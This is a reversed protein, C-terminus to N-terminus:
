AFHARAPVLDGSNGLWFSRPCISLLELGAQGEEVSGPKGVWVVRAPVCSRRGEAAEIEVSQGRKLAVGARVRIGKMSFDMLCSASRIETGECATLLTIPANAGTRFFRRIRAPAESSSQLGKGEVWPLALAVLFGVLSAAVLLDLASSALNGISM